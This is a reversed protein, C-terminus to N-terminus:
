VARFGWPGFAPGAPGPGPLGLGALAGAPATRVNHGLGGAFPLCAVAGVLCALATVQVAPLRRLVPKQAMVGITWALAALLCLVVGILDASAAGASAVGILVAGVFAIGAGLLLGRPFGEGLLVGALLAILVPGVNILMAATGADLRHEAANLAVNYFGFWAVGCLAVLGWERRSPRVWGQGVLLVATLALGGVLLRGQALPGPGFSGRVGRIAVFASAWAVVTIAVAAVVAALPGPRTPSTTSTRAATSTTMRDRYARCQEATATSDAAWCRPGGVEVSRPVRRALSGRNTSTPHCTILTHNGIAVSAPR